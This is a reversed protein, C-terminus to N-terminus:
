PTDTRAVVPTSAFVVSHLRAGPRRGGRGLLATIARLHANVRRLEARTIWGKSRGCWLARLPGETVVGATAIAAAFDRAALRLLARSTRVVARAASGTGANYRLRLPRAPVDYVAELRRGARRRGVDVLLRLRLLLRVHYYLSHPSRGLLRAIEAISGPGAAHVSDLLELRVPSALAAIQAPGSVLYGATSRPRAGARKM